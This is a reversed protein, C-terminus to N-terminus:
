INLLRLFTSFLYADERDVGYKNLTETGSNRPVPAQPTVLNFELGAGQIELVYGLVYDVTRSWPIRCFCVAPPSLGGPNSHLYLVLQM